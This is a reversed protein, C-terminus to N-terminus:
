RGHASYAAVHARYPILIVYRLVEADAADEEEDGEGDSGGEGSEEADDEDDERGAGKGRRGGPWGSRGRGVRGRGRGGGRTSRKSTKRRGSPGAGEGEGSDGGDDGEGEEDDDNNGAGLWDGMGPIGHLGQGATGLVGDGTYDADDLDVYEGGDGLGSIGLSGLNPFGSLQDYLGADPDDRAGEDEAEGPGAAVTDLPATTTSLGAQPRSTDHGTRSASSSSANPAPHGNAEDLSLLSPDIVFEDTM